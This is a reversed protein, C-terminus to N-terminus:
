DRAKTSDSQVTQAASLAKGHLVAYIPMTAVVDGPVLDMLVDDASGRMTQVSKCACAYITIFCLAMM